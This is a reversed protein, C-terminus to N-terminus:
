KGKKATSSAPAPKKEAKDQKSKLAEAEKQKSEEIDQAVAKKFDEKEQQERMRSLTNHKAAAIVELRAENTLAM